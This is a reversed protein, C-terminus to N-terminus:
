KLLTVKSVKGNEDYKLLLDFAFWFDKLKPSEDVKFEFIKPTGWGPKNYYKPIIGRYFNIEREELSKSKNFYKEMKGNLYYRCLLKRESNKLEINNLVKDNLLIVEIYDVEKRWETPKTKGLKVEEETLYNRFFVPEVRLSLSKENLKTAGEDLFYYPIELEFWGRTPGGTFFDSHIKQKVLPLTIKVKQNGDSKIAYDSSILTAKSKKFNVENEQCIEEFNCVKLTLKHEVPLDKIQDKLRYHLTPLKTSIQYEGPELVYCPIFVLWTISTKAALKFSDSKDIGYKKDVTTKGLKQFFYDGLWAFNKEDKEIYGLQIFSTLEKFKEIPYNWSIYDFSTDSYWLEIESDTNNELTILFTLPIYTPYVKKECEIKLTVENAAMFSAKTLTLFFCFFLVQKIKHCM